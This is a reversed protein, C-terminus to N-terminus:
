IWFLCVSLIFSHFLAPIFKLGFCKFSLFSVFLIYCQFWCAFLIFDLTNREIFMLRFIKTASVFSACSHTLLCFRSYICIYEGVCACVWGVLTLSIFSKLYFPAQIHISMIYLHTHATRIFQGISTKPLKQRNTKKRLELGNM